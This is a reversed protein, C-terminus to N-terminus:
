KASGTSSDHDVSVKASTPQDKAQGPQTERAEVWGKGYCHPCEGLGRKGTGDCYGCRVKTHDKPQGNAALEQSFMQPHDAEYEEGSMYSEKYIDKFYTPRDSINHVGDAQGDQENDSAVVNSMRKKKGDKQHADDIAEKNHKITDELDEGTKELNTKGGSAVMDEAGLVSEISEQILVDYEEESINSM